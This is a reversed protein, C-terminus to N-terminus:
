IRSSEYAQGSGFQLRKCERQMAELGAEPVNPNLHNQTVESVEICLYTVYHYAPPIKFALIRPSTRRDLNVIARVIRFQLHQLKFLHADALLADDCGQDKLTSCRIQDPVSHLLEGQRFYHSM